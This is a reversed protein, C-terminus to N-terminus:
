ILVNINSEINKREVPSLLPNDRFTSHIFTHEFNPQIFEHFFFEACPNFDIFTCETTRTNLQDFTQYSVRQNAENVYLIDRRTGHGKAEAGEIGIFEILTKNIKHTSETKNKISDIDVQFFNLIKEWDNMAGMKLHPLAYSAM